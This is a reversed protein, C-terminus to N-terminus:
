QLIYGRKKRKMQYFTHWPCLLELPWRLWLTSVVYQVVCLHGSFPFLVVSTKIIIHWVSKTWLVSFVLCNWDKSCMCMISINLPTLVWLAHEFVVSPRKFDFYFRLQEFSCHVFYKGCNVHSTFMDVPQCECKYCCLNCCLLALCLFVIYLTGLQLHLTSM